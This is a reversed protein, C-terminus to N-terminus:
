HSLSLLESSRIGNFGTSRVADVQEQIPIEGDGPLFDSLEVENWVAGEKHAIDDRFHAFYIMSSDLKEVDDPTSAGGPYFQGYDIVMMM